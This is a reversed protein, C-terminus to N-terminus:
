AAQLESQEATNAQEEAGAMVSRVSAVSGRITEANDVLVSALRSREVLLLAIIDSMEQKTTQKIDGTAVIAAAALAAITADDAASAADSAKNAVAELTELANLAKNLRSVEGMAKKGQEALEAASAAISHVSAPAAGDAPKEEVVKGLAQLAAFSAVSAVQEAKGAKQAAVVARCVKLFYERSKHKSDPWIAKVAKRAEEDGLFLCSAAAVKFFVGTAQEYADGAARIMEVANISDVFAVAGVTAATAIVSLNAAQTTM